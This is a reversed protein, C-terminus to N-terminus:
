DACISDEVRSGYVDIPEKITHGDSLRDSGTEEIADVYDLFGNTSLSDRRRFDLM